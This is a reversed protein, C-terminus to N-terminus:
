LAKTMLIRELNVGNLCVSERAQERLGMKEFFRRANLSARTHLHTSGAIRAEDELYQGLLTAIGLGAADPHVYLMAITDEPRLQAFGVTRGELQAVLTLGQKLMGVFDPEEARAAWADCQEPSYDAGALANIAQQFLEPLSAIEDPEPPRIEFPLVPRAPARQRPAPAPKEASTAAAPPTQLRRRLNNWARSLM